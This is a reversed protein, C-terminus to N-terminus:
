QETEMCTTEEYAIVKIFKNKRLQMYQRGSHM